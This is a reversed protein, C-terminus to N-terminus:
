KEIKVKITKHNHIKLKLKKIIQSATIFIKMIVKNIM